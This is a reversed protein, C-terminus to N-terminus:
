AVRVKLASGTRYTDGVALGGAAAAADDAYETPVTGYRISNLTARKAVGIGGATVISGTSTSTSDTANDTSRGFTEFTPDPTTITVGTQNSSANGDLTLTTTTKNIVRKIGTVGASFQVFDDVNVGSTNSVNSIIPNANTTDGTVSLASFTGSQSCRWGYVGDTSNNKFVQSNAPWSGTTPIADDFTIRQLGLFYPSMTTSLKPKINYRKDVFNNDFSYSNNNVDNDGLCRSICKSINCDSIQLGTVSSGLGIGWQVTPETQDDTIEVGALLVDVTSEIYLSAGGVTFSGSTNNSSYKGGIVKTRSSDSLISLGNTQNYKSINGILQADPCKFVRIGIKSYRIDNNSLKPSYVNNVHLGVGVIALYDVAGYIYNNSITFNLVQEKPNNMGSGNVIIGYPACNFCFNNDINIAYCANVAYIGYKCDRVKNNSVNTFIDFASMRDYDIDTLIPDGELQIGFYCDSIDNKSINMKQGQITCAGTCGSM